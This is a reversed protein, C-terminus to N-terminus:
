SAARSGSPHVFVIVPLPANLLEKVIDRMALDLGGPTDLLIIVGASGEARSRDIGKTIYDAVAPTIASDVTIADFVGGRAEEGFAEGGGVVALFLTVLVVAVARIREKM